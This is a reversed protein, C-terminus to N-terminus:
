VIQLGLCTVLFICCTMSIVRVALYQLVIDNPIVKGNMKLLWKTFYWLIMVVTDDWAHLPLNGIRSNSQIIYFKEQSVAALRVRGCPGSVFVLIEIYSLGDGSIM